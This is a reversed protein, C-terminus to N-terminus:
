VNDEKINWIVRYSEVVEGQQLIDYVVAISNERKIYKHTFVGIEIRGFETMLMGTTHQQQQYPLQSQVDKGMHKVLLRQDSAKVYTIADGNTEKYEIFIGSAYEFYSCRGIYLTKHLGSHLDKQKVVVRKMM